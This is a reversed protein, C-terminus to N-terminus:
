TAPPRLLRRLSDVPFVTKSVVPLLWGLLSPGLAIGALIEAIVMPQKIWRVALGLARSCVIILMAQVLFLSLPNHLLAAM